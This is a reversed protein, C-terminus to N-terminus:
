FVFLFALNHAFLFLPGPYLIFFLLFFIVCGLIISHACSISYFVPSISNFKELVFTANKVFRIYFFCSIVSALIAVSTLFYVGANFSAFFLIFKAIFGSLPPIGAMSFLITAFTIGLLPNSSAVLYLDGIFILNKSKNPTTIGKFQLTSLTLSFLGLSTIAYIILYLFIASLGAISGSLVGLLMYGVHGMASYAILRKIKKQKLGVFCALLISGFASFFLIPQLVLSFYDNLPLEPLSYFTNFLLRCCLGFIAIKPVVAFFCTVILPAGEYVDPLWMHFPVAGLKFLLGVFVFTFGVLLGVSHISSFFLVEGPLVEYTSLCLLRFLEEFHLTGSFGYILSIGFLLFGSAFAGLIFYKLGAETSFESDRRLAALIYLAFSQLELALYFSLLNYSSVLLLMGLTAFLILLVLEFSYIVKKLQSTLVLIICTAILILLKLYVAYSDVVFFNLFILKDFVSVQMFVLYFTILLTHLGLWSFRKIQALGDILVSLKSQDRSIALHRQFLMDSTAFFEGSLGSGFQLKKKEVAQKNRRLSVFRAFPRAYFMPAVIKLNEKPWSLVGFVLLLCLACILFAEPLSMIYLYINM